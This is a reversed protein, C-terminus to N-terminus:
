RRLRYFYPTEPVEKGKRRESRSNVEKQACYIQLAKASVADEKYVTFFDSCSM